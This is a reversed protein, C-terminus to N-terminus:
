KYYAMISGDVLAVAKFDGYYPLGTILDIDTTVTNAGNEEWNVISASVDLTTNDAIAIICYFHGYHKATNNIVNAGQQGYPAKLLDEVMNTTDRDKILAM